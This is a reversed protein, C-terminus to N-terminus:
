GFIEEARKRIRQSTRYSEQRTTRGDLGEVRRGKVQAMHPKIAMDRCGGVFSGPHYGRDAGVSRPEFGQMCLEEMQDLAADGESSGPGCTQRLNISVCLGSRNEMVAHLGHGLRAEQGKGKRMLRAEPDTTSVHTANSGGEGKFDVWGNRGSPSDGNDTNSNDNRRFTRLSSWAEILTGDVSFHENSVWGERHALEVLRAFFVEAVQQELLREANKSWSSAHFASEDPNMDLFWQFLLDYCLRECFQRDSRVSYLAQLVKGSLLREPPVSPQGHDTYMEAFAPSLEALVEGVMPKVSRIPHGAPIRDELNLLCVM